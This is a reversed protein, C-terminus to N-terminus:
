SIDMKTLKEMKEMVLYKVLMNKYYSGNYGEIFDISKNLNDIKFILKEFFDKQVELIKNVIKDEIIKKNVDDIKDIKCTNNYLERFTEKSADITFNNKYKIDFDILFSYSLISSFEDGKEEEREFHATYPNKKNFALHISRIKSLAILAEM